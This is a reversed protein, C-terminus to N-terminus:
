GAAPVSVTWTQLAHWVERGLEVGEPFHAAFDARLRPAHETLYRSLIAESPADYRVSYRGAAARSFVAGQFCGTALLDPIHTSRMYQEYADIWAPHVTAIVEYTVM